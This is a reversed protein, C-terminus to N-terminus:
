WDGRLRFLFLLSPEGYVLGLCFRRAESFSVFPAFTDNDGSFDDGELRLVGCFSDRLKVEKTCLKPSIRFLRLADGLRCLGRCLASLADDDLAGLDGLDGVVLCNDMLRRLLM